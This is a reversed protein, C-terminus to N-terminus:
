FTVTLDTWIRQDTRKEGGKEKTDYYVAKFVMNKALAFDTGFSWGKYGTQADDFYNGDDCHSYFTGRPQDNYKVFLDWSGPKEAEVEGWTVGLAYGKKDGDLNASSGQLYDATGTVKGLAYGVGANWIHPNDGAIPSDHGIFKYYGGHLDTKGWNKAFELGFYKTDTEDSMKGYMLKGALKEEDGIGIELGDRSDGDSDLVLGAAMTTDYRGGKVNLIGIKGDLYARHFNTDSNGNDYTLDQTNELMGTYNWNDNLQGSITIRTRLESNYSRSGDGLTKQSSHFYMLRGEGTVKVNDTKKELKTIRVGLNDLEESFEGVLKDDSGIAGKALAKAVIQAMEYRTMTKNGQFSGDPYGNIVGETALKAVSAYAWHGKPVDSFPNAALATASIGLAMTLSLLLYKNM